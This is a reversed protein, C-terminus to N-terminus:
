VYTHRRYADLIGLVGVPLSQPVDFRDQDVAFTTSFAAVDRRFWDAATVVACHKVDEPVTAFGWNGTITVERRDSFWTASSHSQPRLRISTYVGDSNPKPMLRYEAATLTSGGGLDSDIVVSTPTGRLDYPALSLITDYWDAGVEFVRATATVPPAFERQTHRMIAKSARTIVSALIADQETDQDPKQLFARVDAVSCLDSAAV